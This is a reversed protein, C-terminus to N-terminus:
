RVLVRIMAWVARGKSRDVDEHRALQRADIVELRGVSAQM